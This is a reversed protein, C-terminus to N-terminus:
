CILKDSSLVCVFLCGWWRQGFMGQVSQPWSPWLLRVHWRHSISIAVRMSSVFILLSEVVLGLLV